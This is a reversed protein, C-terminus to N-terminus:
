EQDAVLLRALRQRAFHLTTRLTTPQMGLDRAVEGQDGQELDVRVFVDRQAPSLAPLASRLRDAFATDDLDDPEVSPGLRALDEDSAADEPHRSRRRVDSLCVNRHIAFVWVRFSRTPEYTPLHRWVRLWTEQALDRAGEWDGTYRYAAAILPRGLLEVLKRFAERDGDSAARALDEM